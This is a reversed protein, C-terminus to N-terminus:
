AGPVPLRDARVFVGDMQLMQGSARDTFGPVVGALRFGADVLFAMVRDYLPQGAYLPVLSLEVQVVEMRALEQGMGRLVELEYGQTDIKLWPHLGATRIAPELGDFRRITVAEEGVRASHPAAREHSPLMPLLSSSGSNGAVTLTADTDVAGLGIPHVSWGTDGAAERRAAAAAQSGPEFSIIGGRYGHERLRRGFQGEGAGVDFVVDIDLTALLRSATGAPAKRRPTRAPAPHRDTGPAAKWGRLRGLLSTM